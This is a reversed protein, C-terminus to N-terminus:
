CTSLPPPPHLSPVGQFSDPDAPIDDILQKGLGFPGGNEKVLISYYKGAARYAKVGFEM